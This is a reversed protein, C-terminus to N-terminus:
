SPLQGLERRAERRLDPDPASEALIQWLSRALAEDRLNAAAAAAATAGLAAGETSIGSAGWVSRLAEIAERIRAQALMVAVRAEGVRRKVNEDHQTALLGDLTALGHTAELNAMDVDGERRLHQVVRAWAELARPHTPQAACLASFESRAQMWRDSAEYIVARQFRAEATADDDRRFETLIQDYIALASDPRGGLQQCRAMQTLGKLRGHRGFGSAAWNAWRLASDPRGADIWREGMALVRTERAAPTAPMALAQRWAARAADVDGRMEHADGLADLLPAAAERGQQRGVAQDLRTVEAELLSDRRAVRGMAEWGLALRRVADFVAHEVVGDSEYVPAYGRAIREWAALAAEDQGAREYAGARLVEADLSLAPLLHWTEVVRGYGAVAEDRRGQIDALRALALTARGSIEAVDLAVRSGGPRAWRAPPFDQVIQGYAREARVFDMPRAARPQVFLRNVSREAIWFEREARYRAWLDPDGCGSAALLLALAATRALSRRM